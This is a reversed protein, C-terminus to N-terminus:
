RSDHFHKELSDLLRMIDDPVREQHIKDVWEQSYYDPLYTAEKWVANLFVKADVWAAPEPIEAKLEQFRQENIRKTILNRIQKEELLDKVTKLIKEKQDQGQLEAYRAITSECIVYNQVENYGWVFRKLGGKSRKEDAEVEAKSRYDRDSITFIRLRDNEELGLVGRFKHAMGEDFNDPRGSWRVFVLRGLFHAAKQKGWCRQIWLRLYRADEKNEVIVINKHNEIDMLKVNSLNDYFGLDKFASYKTKDTLLASAKEAGFNIIQQPKYAGILAISHTTCVIQKYPQFHSIEQFIRALTHQLKHFLHSDPEDIFVVKIDPQFFFISWCTYANTSDLVM